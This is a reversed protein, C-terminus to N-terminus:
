VKEKRLGDISLMVVYKLKDPLIEDNTYPFLDM